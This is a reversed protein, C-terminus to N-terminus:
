DQGIKGSLVEVERKISEQTLVKRQADLNDCNFGCYVCRNVCYNGLYLPAFTVIRNDYIKLKIKLACERMEELLAKDTVNILVAVEQPTLDKIALSKALIDRVEKPDPQKPAQALQREILDDDIFDKGNNMYKTVEDMRIRRDVWSTPVSDIVQM